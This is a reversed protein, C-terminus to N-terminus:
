VDTTGYGDEENHQSPQSLADFIICSVDKRPPPLCRLETKGARIGDNTLRGEPRTQLWPDDEVMARMAHFCNSANGQDPTCIHIERSNEFTLLLALELATKPPIGSYM